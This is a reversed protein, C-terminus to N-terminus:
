NNLPSKTNFISVYRRGNIKAMIEKKDFYGYYRSDRSHERNDGMCFYSNEDLTVKFNETLGTGYVDEVYNGNVFLQNDKYQITEGPLGIVRKILVTKGEVSNIIVVDFRNLYEFHKEGLILNTDHYNPEMSYGNVMVFTYNYSFISVISVVVIAMIIYWRTYWPQKNKTDNINEVETIEEKVEKIKM